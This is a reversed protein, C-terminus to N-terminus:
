FRNRTRSSIYSDLAKPDIVQWKTGFEGRQFNNHYSPPRGKRMNEQISPIYRAGPVFSGSTANASLWIVMKQNNRM